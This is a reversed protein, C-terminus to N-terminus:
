ILLFTSYLQLIGHEIYQHNFLEAENSDTALCKVKLAQQATTMQLSVPFTIEKWPKSHGCLNIM